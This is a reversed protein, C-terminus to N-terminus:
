TVDGFFKRAGSKLDARQLSTTATPLPTRHRRSLHTVPGRTQGALAATGLVLGVFPVVFAVYNKM